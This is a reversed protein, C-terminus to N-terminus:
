AMRNIGPRGDEVRFSALTASGTRADHVNDLGVFHTTTASPAVELLMFGRKDSRGYKIHPNIDLYQATRAQPRSSSAVSTGCFETAIMPNGPAAPRDFDARLETAYFTHVDGGLLVPNAAASGALTDLLRRRAIPYGDWGDTWFRGDGPGIIKVQSSQAMLTQQAIFNWRAASSKLGAALWAEQESGLMSRGPDRLDV